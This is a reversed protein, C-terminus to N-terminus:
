VSIFSSSTLGTANEIFAIVDGNLSLKTDFPDTGTSFDGETLTYQSLSGEIQIKDGQSVSFDRIVAFQNFQTYFATLANGLVFTDAGLGGLLRDQEGATFGFGNLVDNGLSGQLNDSGSDGFLRDNGFSGNLDDRGSGGSIFDNGGSGNVLDDGNGAFIRDDGDGTLQALDNDGIILDNGDLGQITDNGLRGRIEDNFISGVLNNSGNDGNIIPM